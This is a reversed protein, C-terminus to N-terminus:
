NQEAEIIERAREQRDEIARWCIGCFYKWSQHDPLGRSMAKTIAHLLDDMDLGCDRFTILSRVTITSPDPIEYRQEDSRFIRVTEDIFQNVFHADSSRSARAEAAAHEMAKSWRLADNTVDEILSADPSASSKGSNCDECATVLNGPQDAGGLAV